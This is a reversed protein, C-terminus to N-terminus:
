LGGDLQRVIVGLAQLFLSLILFPVCFHGPSLLGTLDAHEATRVKRLLASLVNYNMKEKAKLGQHIELFSPECLFSASFFPLWPLEWM